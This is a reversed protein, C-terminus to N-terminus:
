LDKNKNDKDNLFFTVEDYMSEVYKVYRNIAYDAQMVQEVYQKRWLRESIFYRRDM